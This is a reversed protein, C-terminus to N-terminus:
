CLTDINNFSTIITDVYQETNQFTTEMLPLIDSEIVALLALLNQKTQKVNFYKDNELLEKIDSIVAKIDTIENEHYEKLKKQLKNYENDRLNVKWM